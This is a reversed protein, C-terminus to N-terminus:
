EIFEIKHKTKNYRMENDYKRLMHNIERGYKRDSWGTLDLIQKKTMSKLKQLTDLLKYRTEKLEDQIIKQKYVRKRLPYHRQYM